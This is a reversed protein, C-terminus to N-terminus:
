RMYWVMVHFLRNQVASCGTDSAPVTQKPRGFLGNLLASYILRNDMTANMSVTLM